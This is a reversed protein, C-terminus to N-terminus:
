SWYTLPKQVGRYGIFCSITLRSKSETPKVAHLRMANFLILDGIKPQYTISPLPLKDREIGYCGNERLNDYHKKDLSYNWLDLEGGYDAVDLYINAAFQATLSYAAAADPADSKFLDQHPLFDIGPEVIRCLGVFMKRGDINEINAGAEWIEQLKLRLLDMPSITPYFAQRIKEINPVASQYYEEILEKKNQTEFYAMGARGISPANIYHEVNTNLYNKVRNCLDSSYFGPIVIASIREQAMDILDQANLNTSHKLMKNYTNEKLKKNKM